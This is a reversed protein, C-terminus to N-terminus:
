RKYRTVSGLQATMWYFAISGLTALGRDVVGMDNSGVVNNVVDEEGKEVGGVAISTLVHDLNGTM